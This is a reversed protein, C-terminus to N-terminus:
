RMFHWHQGWALSLSMRTLDTMMDNYTCPIEEQAICAQCTSQVLILVLLEHRLNVRKKSKHTQKSSLPSKGSKSLYQLNTLNWLPFQKYLNKKEVKWIAGVVKCLRSGGRLM